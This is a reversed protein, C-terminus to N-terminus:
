PIWYCHSLCNLYKGPPGFLLLPADTKSHVIQKVADNQANNLGTIPTFEHDTFKPTEHFLKNDVIIKFLKNKRLLSLGCNQALYNSRNIGFELNYFDNGEKLGGAVRVSVTKAVADFSQITGSQKPETPNRSFLAPKIEVTSAHGNKM